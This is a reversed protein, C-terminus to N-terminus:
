PTGTTDTAGCTTPRGAGIAVIGEPTGCNMYWWAIVDDGAMSAYVNIKGALEGLTDPLAARYDCMSFYALRESGAFTEPTDM